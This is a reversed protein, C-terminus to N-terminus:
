VITERPLGDINQSSSIHVTVAEESEVRPKYKIDEDQFTAVLGDTKKFGKSIAAEIRMRLRDHDNYPVLFLDFLNIYEDLQGRISPYIKGFEEQYSPRKVAGKLYPNWLLKKEGKVFLKPDYIRYKGSRLSDRHVKFRENFSRGTEGVYYVLYGDEFKVTWLYIGKHNSFESSFVSSGGNTFKFPGFLKLNVLEM